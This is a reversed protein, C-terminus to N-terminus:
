ADSERLHKAMGHDNADELALACFERIAGIEWKLYGTMATAVAHMAIRQAGCEDRSMIGTPINVLRDHAAQSAARRVILGLLDNVDSMDKSIADAVDSGIGCSDLAIDVKTRKTQYSSLKANM